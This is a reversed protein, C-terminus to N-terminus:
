FEAATSPLEAPKYQSLHTQIGPLTKTANKIKYQNQNMMHNPEPIYVMKCFLLKFTERLNFKGVNFSGLQIKSCM